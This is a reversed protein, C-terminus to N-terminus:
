RLTEAVHITLYREFRLSFGESWQNLIGHDKNQTCLLHCLYARHEEYKSYLTYALSRLPQVFPERWTGMAIGITQVSGSSREDDQKVSM